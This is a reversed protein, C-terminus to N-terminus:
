PTIKAVPVVQSRIVVGALAVLVADIASKEADTLPLGFTVAVVLVADVLAIWLAPESTIWNPLTM